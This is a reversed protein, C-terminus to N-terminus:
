LNKKIENCPVNFTRELPLAIGIELSSDIVQIYISQVDVVGHQKGSNKFYHIVAWLLCVELFNLTSMSESSRPPQLNRKSTQLIHKLKPLSRDKNGKHSVVEKCKGEDCQGSCRCLRSCGGYKVLSQRKANNKHRRKAMIHAKTQAVVVVTRGEKVSSVAQLTNIPIQKPAESLHFVAACKFVWRKLSISGSFFYSLLSFVNIKATSLAWFNWCPTRQGAGFLLFTM